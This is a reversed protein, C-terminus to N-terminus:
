SPKSDKPERVLVAQIEANGQAIGGHVVGSLLMHATIIAADVIGTDKHGIMICQVQEDGFQMMGLEHVLCYAKLEDLLKEPFLTNREPHNVQNKQTM